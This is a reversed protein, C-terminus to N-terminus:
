SPSRKCPMCSTAPEIGALEVLVDNHSGQGRSIPDPNKKNAGKAPSPVVKLHRPKGLGPEWSAVAAYVTTLEASEITGDEGV